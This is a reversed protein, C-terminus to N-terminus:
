ICAPVNYPWDCKNIAPNFINGDPCCGEQPRGSFLLIM